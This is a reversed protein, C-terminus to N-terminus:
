GGPAGRRASRESPCSKISMTALRKWAPGCAARECYFRALTPLPLAHALHLPRGGRSLTSVIMGVLEGRANFLPGGSEGRRTDMQVVMADDYGFRGYRVPTGFRMSVLTGIRATEKGGRPRGLSFVPEGRRLCPSQAPRVPTARLRSIKMLGIDPVTSVAVVRGDRIRGDAARAMVKLRPAVAVHGATMAHGQADIMFGSGSAVGRGPRAQFENRNREKRVLLTIFAPSVRGVQAELDHEDGASAADVVLTIDRADGSLVEADDGTACGAVVVALLFAPLRRPWLGGRRRNKGREEEGPWHM